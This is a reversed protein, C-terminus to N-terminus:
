QQEQPKENEVQVAYDPMPSRYAKAEHLSSLEDQLRHWAEVSEQWRKFTSEPVQVVQSGDFLETGECPCFLPFSGNEMVIQVCVTKEEATM